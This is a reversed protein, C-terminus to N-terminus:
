IHFDLVKNSWWSLPRKGGIELRLSCYEQDQKELLKVETIQFCSQHPQFLWNFSDTLPYWNESFVALLPAVRERGKGKRGRCQEILEESM